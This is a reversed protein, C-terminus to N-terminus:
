RGGEPGTGRVVILYGLSLALMLNVSGLLGTLLLSSELTTYYLGFGALVTFLGIGAKIPTETLSLTVLGALVLWYVATTIAPALGPLPFTRSLTTTILILLFVLILRFYFGTEVFANRDESNTLFKGFALKQRWGPHSNRVQEPLMAEVSLPTAAVQRASLFLIPCIFAGILIQLVAIDPQVLRSLMIGVLIYQTLLAMILLRWDRGVLILGATIFLGLLTTEYTIFQLQRLLEPLTPM